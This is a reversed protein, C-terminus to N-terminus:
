LCVRRADQRRRRNKGPGAPRGVGQAGPGRPAGPGEGGGGGMPRGKNGGRGLGLGRSSARWPLGMKAAVSNFLVEAFRSRYYNGTCLFLVGKERSQAM